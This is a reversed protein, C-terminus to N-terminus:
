HFVFVNVDLFIFGNPRQTSPKLVVKLKVIIFPRVLTEGVGGWSFDIEAIVM